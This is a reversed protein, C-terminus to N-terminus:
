IGQLESDCLGWRREEENGWENISTLAVTIDHSLVNHKDRLMEVAGVLTKVEARLVNVQMRMEAENYHDDVVPARMFEGVRARKEAPSTAEQTSPRARPPTTPTPTSTAPSAM